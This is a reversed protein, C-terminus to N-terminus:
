MRSRARALEGATAVLQDIRLATAFNLNRELYGAGKSQALLTPERTAIERALTLAAEMLERDPVVLSVVGIRGAEEATLNRGTLQVYFAKKLPIGSHFLTATAIQGFSGRIIEPMGFKASAGAVALDHANVLALGGGLCYGNIVAITVQPMRRMSRIIREMPSGRHWCRDRKWSDRLDYLDLGSSYSDGSGTTVVCRIRDNGRIEELAAAVEAMLVWSFANKREPRNFTLLAIGEDERLEKVLPAAM